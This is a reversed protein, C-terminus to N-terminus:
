ASESVREELKRLRESLTAVEGRLGAVDDALSTCVDLARIIHEGLIRVATVADVKVAKVVGSDRTLDGELPTVTADRSTKKPPSMPSTPSM